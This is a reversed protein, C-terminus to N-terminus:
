VEKKLEYTISRIAKAAENDNSYTFLDKNPIREGVVFKLKKKEQQFMEDSLYLMEVNTKIGLFKRISYLRYFFKSLKGDIYIPIVDHGHMKAYKVFTKKWEFDQIKRQYKRSVMGAPFICVANDSEFLEDIKEKLSVGSRGHKNVGVFLERLNELNMLLDNVVFKLDSRHERLASVLAIADMGGLPHNMVIVIKGSKPIRDQNIIETQIQFHDIIADCFDIGYLDKNKGIFDNVENQHLIRKLYRIVFGPLRKLTKPSKSAILREVDIFKEEAVLVFNSNM